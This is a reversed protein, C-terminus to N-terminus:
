KQLSFVGHLNRNKSLLARGFLALREILVQSSQLLFVPSGFGHSYSEAVNFSVGDGFGIRTGTVDDNIPIVRVNGGRLIVVVFGPFDFGALSKPNGFPFASFGVNVVRQVFVVNLLKLGRGPQSKEWGTNIILPHHLSRNLFTPVYICFTLFTM